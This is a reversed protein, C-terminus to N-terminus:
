LLVHRKYSLALNENPRPRNPEPKRNKDAVNAKIVRINMRLCSESSMCDVVYSVIVAVDDVVSTFPTSLAFDVSLAPNKFRAKTSSFSENFYLNM